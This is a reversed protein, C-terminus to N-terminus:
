LRLGQVILRVVLMAVIVIVIVLLMVPLVVALLPRVARGAPPSALRHETRKRQQAELNAISQEANKINREALTPHSVVPAILAISLQPIKM